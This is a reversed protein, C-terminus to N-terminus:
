SETIAVTVRHEQVGREAAIRACAGRSKRRRTDSASCDVLDAATSTCETGVTMMSHESPRQRGGGSAKALCIDCMCIPTIAMNRRNYQVYKRTKKERWLNKLHM